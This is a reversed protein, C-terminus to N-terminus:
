SSLFSCQNGSRRSQLLPLYAPFSSSPYCHKETYKIEKLLLKHQDKEGSDCKVTEEKAKIDSFM